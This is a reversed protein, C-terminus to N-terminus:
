LWISPVEGHQTYITENLVKWTIITVSKEHHLNYVSILFSHIFALNYYPNLWINLGVGMVILFDITSFRFHLHKFWCNRSIKLMKLSFIHCVKLLCETIRAEGFILIGSLTLQCMKYNIRDMSSNHRIRHINCQGMPQTTIFGESWFILTIPITKDFEGRSWSMTKYSKPVDFCCNM